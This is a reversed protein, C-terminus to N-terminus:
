ITVTLNLPLDEGNYIYLGLGFMALNKTLCRMITKNVDFMSVQEVTKDKYVTKKQKKSEDWDKAKYIYSSDKMAKNAGDMVPLWMLRTINDATVSTYVMYGMDSSGFYCRGNADKDITYTADPYVKMFEEWAKAWSLYTLNNKKETFANVNFSLLENQKSM